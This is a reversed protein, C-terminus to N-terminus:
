ATALAAILRPMAARDHYSKMRNVLTLRGQRDVVFDGGLQGPDPSKGLSPERRLASKLGAWYLGPRIWTMLGAQGLGWQRYAAMQPDLLLTYPLELDRLMKATLLEPDHFAVLVVDAGLRELDARAQITRIVHGRCFQCHAPGLFSVLVPRGHFDRLSHRVGAADPLELRPAPAGVGPAGVGLKM